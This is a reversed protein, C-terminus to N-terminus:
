QQNEKGTAGPAFDIFGTITQLLKGRTVGFDVGGAVAAGGDPALEWGFRLHDHHADLDGARRFRLGPFQGQVAAIMADIGSRGEGHVLPDLYTADETWTQAILEKRREPNTENWAAIYRDILETHSAMQLIEEATM